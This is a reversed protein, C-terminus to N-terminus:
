IKKVLRMVILIGIFAAGLLPLNDFIKDINFKSEGDFQPQGEENFGSFIRNPERLDSVAIPADLSATPTIIGDSITIGSGTRQRKTVEIAVQKRIAAEAFANFDSFRGLGVNIDSFGGSEITPVTSLQGRLGFTTVGFKDSLQQQARLVSPHLIPSTSKRAAGKARGVGARFAFSQKARPFQKTLIQVRSKTQATRKLLARNALRRRVARRQQARRIQVGKSSRAVAAARIRRSRIRRISAPTRRRVQVTRARSQARRRSFRRRRAGGRRGGHRAM